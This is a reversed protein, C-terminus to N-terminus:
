IPKSQSHWHPGFFRQKKFRYTREAMIGGGRYHRGSPVNAEHLRRVFAYLGSDFADRYVNDLGYFGPGKYRCPTAIVQTEILM